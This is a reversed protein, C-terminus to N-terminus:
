SIIVKGLYIESDEDGGPRAYEYESSANRESGSISVQTKTMLIRSQSMPVNWESKEM